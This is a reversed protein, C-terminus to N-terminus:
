GVPKYTRNYHIAIFLRSRDARENLHEEHLTYQKKPCTYIHSYRVKQIIWQIAHIGLYSPLLLELSSMNASLQLVISHLCM